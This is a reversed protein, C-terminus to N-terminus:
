SCKKDIGGRPGNMDTLRVDIVCETDKLCKAAAIGIKTMVYEYEADSTKISEM